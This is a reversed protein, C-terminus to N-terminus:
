SAMAIMTSTRVLAKSFLTPVRLCQKSHRLRGSPTQLMQLHHAAPDLHTQSPPTWAQPSPPQQSSPQRRDAPGDRHLLVSPTAACLGHGQDRQASHPIAGSSNCSSHTREELLGVTCLLQHATFMHHSVASQAHSACLCINFSKTPSSYIDTDLCSLHDSNQQRLIGLVMVVPTATGAPPM